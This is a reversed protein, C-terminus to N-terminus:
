IADTERRKKELTDLMEDIEKISRDSTRMMLAAEEGTDGAKMDVQTFRSLFDKPDDCAQRFLFYAADNPAASPSKGTRLFKGAAEIAWTLNERHTQEKDECAIEAKSVNGNTRVPCYGPDPDSRSTDYETFLESLCLFGKSAQVVASPKSLGGKVMKRVLSQWLDYTPRDKGQEQSWLISRAKKAFEDMSTKIASKKDRIKETEAIVAEVEIRLKELGEKKIKIEIRKEYRRIASESVDYYAALKGRSMGAQRKCHIDYIEAITLKSEGSGREEPPAISETQKRSTRKEDSLIM